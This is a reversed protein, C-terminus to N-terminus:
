YVKKSKVKKLFDPSMKARITYRKPLVFDEGTHINNLTREPLEHNKFSAFGKFAVDYGFYLKDKVTEFIVTMLHSVEQTTFDTKKAVEKAIEIQNMITNKHSYYCIYNFEM